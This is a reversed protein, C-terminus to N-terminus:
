YNKARKLFPLWNILENFAYDYTHSINKFNNIIHFADSESIKNDEVREFASYSGNLIVIKAMLVPM